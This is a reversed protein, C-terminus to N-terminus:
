EVESLEGPPVDIEGEFVHEAPGRIEIKKSGDVFVDLPGGLLWVRVPARQVTKRMLSAFAAAGAGTGCAETIGAGREFVVLEISGDDRPKLLEVNV